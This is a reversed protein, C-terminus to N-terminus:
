GPTGTLRDHGPQLPYVAPRDRLGRDHLIPGAAARPLACHGGGGAFVLVSVDAAKGLILVVILGDRARHTVASTPGYLGTGVCGLGSWASSTCRRIGGFLVHSKHVFSVFKKIYMSVQADYLQSGNVQYRYKTESLLVGAMFAGLTNSLGLGETLNSMTLVTVLIVALFAEHSESKAVFNFFRDLCFKGVFVILGFAIVAKFGAWGIAWAMSSGGGVALLPTVVLLPVVALDQVLGCQPIGCVAAL